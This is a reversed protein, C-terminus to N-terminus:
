PSLASLQRAFRREDAQQAIPQIANWDERMDAERPRGVKSPLPMFPKVIEWGADTAESAYRPSSRDHRARATGTRAM